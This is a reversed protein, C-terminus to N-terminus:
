RTVSTLMQHVKKAFQESDFRPLCCWVLRARSDLLAAIACNGIMALDLSSM